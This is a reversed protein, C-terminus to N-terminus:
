IKLIKNFIESIENLFHQFLLYDVMPPIQVLYPLCVEVVTKGQCALYLPYATTTVVLMLSDLFLPFIVMVLFDLYPLFNMAVLM